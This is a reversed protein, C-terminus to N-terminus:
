SVKDAGARGSIEGDDLAVPGGCKPCSKARRSVYNGCDPCPMLNKKKTAGAAIGAFPPFFRVIEDKTGDARKAWEFRTQCQPCLFPCPYHTLRVGCTPCCPRFDIACAVLVGIPGLLLGLSAGVAEADKQLGVWYGIGSCLLWVVVLPCIMVEM